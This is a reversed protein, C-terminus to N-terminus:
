NVGPEGPISHEPCCVISSTSTEDYVWGDGVRRAPVERWGHTLKLEGSEEIGCQDGVHNGAMCYMRISTRGLDITPDDIAVLTPEGAESWGIRFGEVFGRAIEYIRQIAELTYKDGEIVICWEAKEHHKKLFLELARAVYANPLALMNDRYKPM